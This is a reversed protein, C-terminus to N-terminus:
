ITVVSSAVVAAVERHVVGLGEVFSHEDQETASAYAEGHLTLVDRLKRLNRVLEEDSLINDNDVVAFLTPSLGETLQHSHEVCPFDRRPVGRLDTLSTSFELGKTTTGRTGTRQFVEEAESHSHELTSLPTLERGNFTMVQHTLDTFNDNHTTYATRGHDRQRVQRVVTHTVSLRTVPPFALTLTSQSVVRHCVSLLGVHFGEHTLPERKDLGLRTFTTDERTRGALLLSVFTSSAICVIVETSVRATFNNKARILETIERFDHDSSRICKLVQLPFYSQSRDKTGDLAGVRM